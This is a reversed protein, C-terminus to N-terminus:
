EVLAQYTLVRFRRNLDLGGAPMLQTLFFAVMREKPDVLYIPYYASGWGYSGESGLEGYYGLDDIVWFGAGFSDTDRMFKDRVLNSRMLEVTRPSLLRVGDLEGENLLMQLLRGYDHVTSLLGAGGSFCKRPGHIYDTKATPERLVLRGDVLGYVPALRGAKEPPLFFCTDPMDLPKFVREALFEDLPRGSVVEVLHGLVDTSFGYQWAEDPQGNLPLTALRNVAEGITEDHDAFYWGHLRATKYDAVAPGDGYTLGATHTLLNLITIPKKAPVTTYKTGEPADPPAVAVVSDKFAPIYKSVPDHLLFHGEEYLIMVATTTVAKSMSAIRFIADTTMPKGAEIDRLGYAKELVTAGDRSIFAVAGALKGDDITQQIATDLRALRGPSFGNSTAAFTGSGTAPAPARDSGPSLSVLALLLAISVLAARSPNFLPRRTRNRAPTM